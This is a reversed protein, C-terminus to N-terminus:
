KASQEHKRKTNNFDLPWHKNKYKMNTVKKRTKLDFPMWAGAYAINPCGEEGGSLCPNFLCAVHRAEVFQQSALQDSASSLNHEKLQLEKLETLAQSLSVIKNSTTANEMQNRM